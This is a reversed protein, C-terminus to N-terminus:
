NIHKARYGAALFTARTLGGAIDAPTGSLGGTFIELPSKENGSPKRAVPKKKAPFIKVGAIAPQFWYSGVSFVGQCLV